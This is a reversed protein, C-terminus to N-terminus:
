LRKRAQAHSNKNSYLTKMTRLLNILNALAALRDRGRIGGGIEGRLLYLLRLVAALKGVQKNGPGWCNKDCLDDLLEQLRHLKEKAQDKSSLASPSAVIYDKFKEFYSMSLGNVTTSSSGFGRQRGLTSGIFRLCLRFCAPPSSQTDDGDDDIDRFISAKLRLVLSAIDSAGLDSLGAGNAASSVAMSDSLFVCFFHNLNRSPHAASVFFKQFEIKKKRFIAGFFYINLTLNAEDNKTSKTVRQWFCPSNRQLLPDNARRLTFSM